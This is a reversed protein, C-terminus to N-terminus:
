SGGRGACREAAACAARSSSGPWGGSPTPPRSPAGGSDAGRTGDAATTAARAFLGELRLSGVGELAYVRRDDQTRTLELDVM